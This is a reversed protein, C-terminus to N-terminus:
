VCVCVCVRDFSPHRCNKQKKKFLFIKGIQQSLKQEKRIWACLHLTFSYTCQFPPFLSFFCQFHFFSLPFFSFFFFSFAMMSSAQCQRQLRTTPRGVQTKKLIKKILILVHIYYTTHPCVYLLSLVCKYYCASVYLLQPCMCYYASVNLLILVCIYYYSSAYTTTHPCLYMYLLILVCIYNYVSM